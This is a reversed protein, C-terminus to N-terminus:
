TLELASLRLKLVKSLLVESSRIFLVMIYIYACGLSSLLVPMGPRHLCDRTWLHLVLRGPKNSSLDIRYCHYSTDGEVQM